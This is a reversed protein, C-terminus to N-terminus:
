DEGGGELLFARLCPNQALRHSPLRGQSVGTPPLSPLFPQPPHPPITKSLLLAESLWGVLSCPPLSTYM